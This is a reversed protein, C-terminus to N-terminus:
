HRNEYHELLPPTPTLDYYDLEEITLVYKGQKHFIKTYNEMAEIYLIEDTPIIIQTYERMVTFCTSQKAHQAEECSRTKQKSYCVIIKTALKFISRVTM